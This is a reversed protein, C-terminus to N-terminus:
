VILAGGGSFLVLSDGLLAPPAYAGGWWHNDFGFSWIEEMPTETDPKPDVIPDNCQM